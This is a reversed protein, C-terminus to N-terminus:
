ANAHNRTFSRTLSSAYRMKSEGLAAAAAFALPMAALALTSTFESALFAGAGSALASGFGSALAAGAGSTLASAFGSAFGTGAGNLVTLFGEAASGDSAPPAGSLGNVLPFDNATTQGSIYASCSSSCGPLLAVSQPTVMNGMSAGSPGSLFTSYVMAGTANLKLAFGDPYASQYAGSTTPFDEAAIYFGVAYANKSGDVAISEPSGPGIYASYLLASGAANVATIYGCSDTTDIGSYAFAGSTTPVYACGQSSAAVYAAGASDVAVASVTTSSGGLLTSYVLSAAGSASPNFKAVFGAPNGNTYTTQYAGTTRHVNVGAEVMADIVLDIQEETAKEQMAVIM